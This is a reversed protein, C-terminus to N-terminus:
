KDSPRQNTWRHRCAPIGRAVACGSGAAASEHVDAATRVHHFEEAPGASGEIGSVTTKFERLGTGLSRGVEPLRKAGLLLLALIALFIM